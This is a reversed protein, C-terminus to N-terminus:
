MSTGLVISQFGGEQEIMRLNPPTKALATFRRRRSTFQADEPLKEFQPFRRWLNPNEIRAAMHMRKRWLLRIWIGEGHLKRQIQKRSLCCNLDVIPESASQTPAFGKDEFYLPRHLPGRLDKAYRVEPCDTVRKVVVGNCEVACKLSCVSIMATDHKDWVTDVADSSLQGDRSLDGQAPFTALM